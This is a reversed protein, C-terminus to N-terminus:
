WCTERQTVVNSPDGPRSGIFTYVVCPLPISWDSPPAGRGPGFTVLGPRSPSFERACMSGVHGPFPWRPAARFPYLVLDSRTRRWPSSGRVRPNLTRQETRNVSAVLQSKM